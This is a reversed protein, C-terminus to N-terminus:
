FLFSSFSFFLKEGNFNFFYFFFVLIYLNKFLFVMLNFFNLNKLWAYFLQPDLTKLLNGSLVPLTLLLLIATVFIFWAFLPLKQLSVGPARMNLVTAIFNIAGLLSSIGALHM